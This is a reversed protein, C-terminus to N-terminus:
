MKEPSLIFKYLEVREKRALAGTEASFLQFRHKQREMGIKGCFLM